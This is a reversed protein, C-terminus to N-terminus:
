SGQGTTGAPPENATKVPMNVIEAAVQAAKVSTQERRRKAMWKGTWHVCFGILGVLLTGAATTLLAGIDIPNFEVSPNSVDVSFQPNAITYEPPPLGPNQNGTPRWELVIDVGIVQQSGANQPTVNWTWEVVKQKLSQELLSNLQVDFTTASLTATAYPEYGPGFAQQLAIDPTGIPTPDTTIVTAKEGLVQSVDVQGTAPLLSVTVLYSNKSEMQFPILTEVKLTSLASNTIKPNGPTSSGGGGSSGTSGGGCGNLVLLMLSGFLLMCSAALLTKTRM